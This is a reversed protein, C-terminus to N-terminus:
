ENNSEVKGADAKTLKANSRIEIRPCGCTEIPGLCPDVKISVWDEITRVNSNEIEAQRGADAKSLKASAAIADILEAKDKNFTKVKIDFEFSSTRTESKEM